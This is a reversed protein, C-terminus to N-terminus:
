KLLEELEAIYAKAQKLEHALKIPSGEAERAQRMANNRAIRLAGDLRSGIVARLGEFTARDDSWGRKFQVGPIRGHAIANILMEALSVEVEV